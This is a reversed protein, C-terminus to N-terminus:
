EIVRQPTIPVKCKLGFAEVQRLLVRVLAALSRSRTAVLRAQQSGVELGRVTVPKRPEM